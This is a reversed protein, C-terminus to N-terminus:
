PEIAALYDNYIELWANRKALSMSHILSFKQDGAGKIKQGFVDVSGNEEDIAM